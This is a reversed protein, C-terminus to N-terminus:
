SADRLLAAVKLVTNWNRATGRTALAREMVAGTLKSRGIGEPFYVYLQRHKAHVTEPGVITARLAEVARRSPAQRFCYLVLHAPDASAEAPFPNGDVIRDWEIASRVFFDTEFSLRSRIERDLLAELAAPTSGSAEFVVNGSQLLTRPRDLGLDSFLQQLRKMPLSTRGGVNVGRLLAVFRM